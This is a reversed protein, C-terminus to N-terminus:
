NDKDAPMTLILGRAHEIRAMRLVETETADGTVYLVDPVIRRLAEGHAADIEVCVFPTRTAVLERIIHRGTEGGGCLVVHDRLDEIRREMRRKEWHNSLDGEVFLATITSLGYAVVGLGSIILLITFARGATSLPNTEGYGVSALTIVTM